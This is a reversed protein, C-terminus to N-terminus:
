EQNIYKMTANILKEADVFRGDVSSGLIAIVIPRGLEPDFAFTLNGGAIDTFGTKSGLIGPIYNVLVNTNKAEHANSLSRVITASERTAELADPYHALLYGLLKSVDEASGYAGNKVVSEDLGTENWFYTNKLGLESAKKNMELVFSSIREDDTAVSTNLAALSLAVARIGDNSSTLLSFDLLNKLSWKEESLLGSDGYNELAKNTIKVTGYSPSLDLAVLASMLKTLSALPLRTEANKAYLVKGTRLDYVYASKAEISVEPFVATLRSPVSVSGREVRTGLVFSVLLFFGLAGAMIFFFRTEAERHPFINNM